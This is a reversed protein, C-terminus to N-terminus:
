EKYSIIPFSTVHEIDYVITAELIGYSYRSSYMVVSAPRYRLM